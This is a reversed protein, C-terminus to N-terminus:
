ADQSYGKQRLKNFIHELQAISSLFMVIQSFSHPVIAFAVV